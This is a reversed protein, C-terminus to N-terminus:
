LVKSEVKRDNLYVEVAAGAKGEVSKEVVDGADHWASYVEREGNAERVIIRVSTMRPQSPVVIRVTVRKTQAGATAPAAERSGGDQDEPPGSSVRLDVVTGSEVRRGPGPNQAIVYGAPVREDPQEQVYGMKLGLRDITDRAESLSGEIFRPLDILEPGTSVVAELTRGARVRTGPAPVTSVVCGAPITRSPQERSVRFHLDLSEDCLRSAEDRPKGILDPVIVEDPISHMVYQYAGYTEVGITVASVAITGLLVFLLRYGVLITVVPWPLPKRVQEARERARQRRVGRPTRQLQREARARLTSLAEAAQAAPYRDNPDSKVMGEVVVDVGTPLDPVVKSPVPRRGRPAARVGTLAEALAVGLSWVDSGSSASEHRRVEPALYPEARRTLPARGFAAQVAEAYGLDCWVPGDPTLVVNGPHLRGHVHGEAHLRALGTALAAFVALVEAPAHEAALWQELTAGPVYERVWFVVAGERGCEIGRAVNSPAAARVANLQRMWVLAAKEQRAYAPRLVRIVVPTGHFRDEGRWTVSVSDESLRALLAYRSKLLRDAM